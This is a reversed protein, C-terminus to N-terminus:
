SIKSPINKVLVHKKTFKIDINSWIWINRVYENVCYKIFLSIIAQMKIRIDDCKTYNYPQNVDNVIISIYKAVTVQM